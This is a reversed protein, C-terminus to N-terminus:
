GFITDISNTDPNYYEYAVSINSSNSWGIRGAAYINNAVGLGGSVVLAGSVANGSATTNTISIANATTAGRSTVQQLTTLQGVGYVFAQGTVLEGTVHAADIIETNSITTYQTDNSSITISGSDNIITVNNGATLTTKALGGSSNGILIQGNSYSSQGTGGYTTEIVSGRWTGTGITGVSTLSSGTVGSGLSTSNAILVNNIRFEKGSVLNFHESSTWAQTSNLWTLTKNSDVGALLIVGGGDATTNTPTTTAGLEINKDEVVLINTNVTTTNGQILLDGSVVLTNNITTTGTAAGISITNAAGGINLTTPGTNFLSASAATTSLVGTVTSINGAVNLAGSVGVGGTVVVAGTTSNSSATSSTFSINQDTIAGRATVTQLTDAEPPINTTITVTNTLSDFTVSTNGGGAFRLTSNNDAASFQTIGTSNAINKFINQSSGKDSNVVTINAGEVGGGTIAVGDSGSVNAVYNGTTNIGLAVANNAIVLQGGSVVFSNNTLLWYRGGVTNSALISNNAPAVGLDPEAEELTIYKYRTDSVNSPTTKRIKGSLFPFM